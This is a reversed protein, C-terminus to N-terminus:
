DPDAFFSTVLATLYIYHLLFYLLYLVLVEFTYKLVTSLLTFHVSNSEVVSPVVSVSLLVTYVSSRGRKVRWFIAKDIRGEFDRRKFEQM